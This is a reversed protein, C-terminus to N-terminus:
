CRGTRGVGRYTATFMTKSAIERGKSCRMPERCRMKRRIQCGVFIGVLNGVELGMVAGWWTLECGAKSITFGLLLSASWSSASWNLQSVGSIDVVAMM